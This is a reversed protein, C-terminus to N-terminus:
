ARCRTRTAAWRPRIRPKGVAVLQQEQQEEVQQQQQQQQQEFPTSTADMQGGHRGQSGYIGEKQPM